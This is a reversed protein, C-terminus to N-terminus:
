RKKLIKGNSMAIFILYGIMTGFSNLIIDDIDFVGVHFVIQLVEIFLSITIAFILLKQWTIRKYILPILFGIPVFIVINGILEFFTIMRGQEGNIYSFITKFPVFNAQGTEGSKFNFRLPGIGFFHM